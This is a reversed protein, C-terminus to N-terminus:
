ITMNKDMKKKTGAITNRRKKQVDKKKENKKEMKELGKLDVKQVKKDNANAIHAEDQKPRLGSIVNYRGLGKAMGKLNSRRFAVLEQNEQSLKLRDAGYGKSAKFWGTHTRQYEKSTSEIDDLAKEVSSISDKAPDLRSARLLADHMAQYEKGNKHGEKQMSELAILKEKADKAIGRVSAELNRVQGDLRDKEGPLSKLHEEEGKLVLDSQRIGSMFIETGKNFDIPETGITKGLERIEPLPIHPPLGFTQLITDAFFRCTRGNGDGFVHESVTMLYAYSALQLAQTKRLAENETKKIQNMTEAIRSLTRYLDPAANFTGVGHVHGAAIAEGRLKGGMKDGLRAWSNLGSFADYLDGFTINDKRILESAYIRSMEGIAHLGGESNVAEKLQAELQAKREESIGPAKLERQRDEAKNELTGSNGSRAGYLAGVSTSNPDYHGIEEIGPIPEDALKFQSDTMEYAGDADAPPLKNELYDVTIKKNGFDQLFDLARRMESGTLGGDELASVVNVGVEDYFSNIFDLATVSSGSKVANDVSEDLTNLAKIFEGVIIFSSKQVDGSAFRPYQDRYQIVHSELSGRLMDKLANIDTDTLQAGKNGAIIPM